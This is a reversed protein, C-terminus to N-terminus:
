LDHRCLYLQGSQLNVALFIIVEKNDIIVKHPSGGNEFSTGDSFYIGREAWCLRQDDSSIFLTRPDVPSGFTHFLVGNKDLANQNAIEVNFVSGSNRLWALGNNFNSIAFKSGDLKYVDFGTGNDGIYLAVSQKGNPSILARGGYKKPLTVQQGNSTVMKYTMGGALSAGVVTVVSSDANHAVMAMFFNGLPKGNFTYTQEPKGVIMGSAVHPGKKLMANAQDIQSFDVSWQEQETGIPLKNQLSMDPKGSILQFHGNIYSYLASDYDAIQLDLQNNVVKVSTFWMNFGYGDSGSHAAMEAKSFTYILTGFKAPDTYSGGSASSASGAASSASKDATGTVKSKIKNFLNQAQSTSTATVLILAYIIKKM